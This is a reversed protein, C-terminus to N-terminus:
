SKKTEEAKRADDAAKSEGAPKAAKAVEAVKNASEVAKSKTKNCGGLSIATSLMAVTSILSLKKM